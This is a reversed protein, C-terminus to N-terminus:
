FYKHGKLRNKVVIGIGEFNGMYYIRKKGDEVESVVVTNGNKYLGFDKESLLEYKDLAAFSEEINKLFTFEKKLAMQEIQSLKFADEAKYNGVKTRTLGSMFALTGLDKGIDHVLSRIYTGKSVMTEFLLKENEIKLVKIYKIEIDRSEREVEINKRALEYLRTGDISIASFMPPIQKIKGIYKKSEKEFHDFTTTKVDSYQTIKGESDYSETACGLTMEAIYVKELAEIDSALRTAKGVCVVIVGEALPDLTGTHGIKSTNLIKKLKRIVDYSSM